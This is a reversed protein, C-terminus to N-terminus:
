FFRFPLFPRMGSLSLFQGVDLLAHERLYVALFLAAPELDLSFLIIAPRSYLARKKDAKTLKRFRRFARQGHKFILPFYLIGRSRPPFLPRPLFNERKQAFTSFSPSTEVGFVEKWPYKAISEEFDRVFSHFLFSSPVQVRKASIVFKSPRRRADIGSCFDGQIVVKERSCIKQVRSIVFAFLFLLSSSPSSLDILSFSENRGSTTRTTPEM